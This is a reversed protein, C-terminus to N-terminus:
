KTTEPSNYDVLKADIMAMMQKNSWGNIEAGGNQCSVACMGCAQCTASNVIICNRDADFSRAHYPCIDICRKCRVCIADRVVSIEQALHIKRGSLFFQSKQVAAEAQMISEKLTMPSHAVGVLYTGLKPFEIPRWKADAELFFGNKNVDVDFIHALKQNAPDAEIGTALTLIDVSLEIEADLVKDKFTVVPKGDDIEVKPKSDLGYEMFIVGNRRAETYYQEFSGYTMIDRYLIFIRADPNKEKVLLANFIAGMCCVRSCYNHAEKERSGVCQIMVINEANSVDIQGSRLGKGLESHTMIKDSQGYHYETTQSKQNGTAFIAVAHEISLILGLDHKRIQTDYSGPAGHSSIVDSCLHVMILNHDHIKQSFEQAMEIPKLGDITTSVESGAYGGLKEAREVLHVTTGGEALSLATYMGVIGGGIVLATQNSPLVDVHLTPKLRLYDIHSRIESILRSLRDSADSQGSQNMGVGIDFLEILSPNFGAKEAIKQLKTQYLFPKDAGILLRNGKSQTSIEKFDALGENTYLSNVFHVSEICQHEQLARTVFDANIKHDEKGKNTECLIVTLRALDRDDSRNESPTDEEVSCVNLTSLLRTAQGAAAIGSSMAESIDTLGMFSGCIFVGPKTLKVKNFGDTPLRKQSDLELDLIQSFKQHDEFPSQGTSLVVMDYTEIYFENTASDFYRIKLSGDPEHLVDQVRCRILRVGYTNVANQCYQYYDKGFTRMDMYFITTETESGGKEKALVAQKLAFMCCISSCYDRGQRRNRSGMCQIWAIRKAPKGDSPRKIVGNYTGSRSSIREFALASVVDPSVAYSNADENDNLNYLKSGLALIIANVEKTEVENQADLNIADTPCIKLCPQDQCDNCAKRDIILMQPVNHPVMQFVAKRKTLNHNFEDDVEVPCVKICEGLGNCKDPDIYRAKKQLDVSFKGVDGSVSKLETFPYVEINEHFLSKRMCFQSAVERGIMPLMRCMGCHDTPFQNDLKALIGGVQPSADILVAKYGIEAMELAAKIGSIGAGVVLVKGIQKKDIM